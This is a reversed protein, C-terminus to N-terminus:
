PASARGRAPLTAVVVGVLTLLAAVATSATTPVGIPAILDYVLAGLLQGMVLCLGLVLVGIRGVTVTQIAIFVAGLVGGLYLLPNSPLANPLGSVSLHVATVLALATTGVVFNITTAAIPSGTAVRVRGNVAAQMGVGLGALVPLVIAALPVEGGLEPGVAVVVAVLTIITGILRHRTVAAQRAGAFGTADIWLGTATQGTVIAVTFIAVGLIGAVLGQSLVMFAGGLGGFLMWWRLQGAALLPRVARLGARGRPSVAVAILLIVMGSSFSILAATFGDGLLQGLEGNIRHQTAVGFGAVVTVLCALAFLV